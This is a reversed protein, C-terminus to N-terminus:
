LEPNVAKFKGRIKGGELTGEIVEIETSRDMYCNVNGLSLNTLGVLGLVINTAGLGIQVFLADQGWTWSGICLGIHQNEKLVSREWESEYANSKSLTDFDAPFAIEEFVPVDNMFIDGDM